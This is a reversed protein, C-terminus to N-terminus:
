ASPCVDALPCADCLPDNNKCLAQGHRRLLQHARILWACGRFAHPELAAIAERYTTSYNKSERAHGLRVLVRLGNSELAPVPHTRTFLLIKDAGPRAIGPFLQLARRAKSLPLALAGELDGDFEDQVTEAIAIWKSVRRDPHIGGMGALVSQGDHLHQTATAFGVLM